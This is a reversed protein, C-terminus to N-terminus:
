SQTTIHPINKLDIYNQSCFIITVKQETQQTVHHVWVKTMGDNIQIWNM